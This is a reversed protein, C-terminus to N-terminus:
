TQSTAVRHVTAWGAGRDMSNELCSYQLPNGNGEGPSRESGPNLGLDGVNGASAKGESGCHAQFHQSSLLFALSGEPVKFVTRQTKRPLDTHVTPM